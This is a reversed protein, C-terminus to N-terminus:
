LAGTKEFNATIQLKKQLDTKYKCYYKRVHYRSNEESDLVEAFRLGLL